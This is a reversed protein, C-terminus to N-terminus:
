SLVVGLGKILEAAEPMSFKAGKLRNDVPDMGYEIADTFDAKELNTQHFISGALSSRAFSVKECSAQSFICEKLVSDTFSCGKLKMQAFNCSHLLSKQFCIEFFTPDCLTFDVGMLKSEIFSVGQFRANELKLVVFSCSVFKCDFFRWKSLDVRDFICKEFQCELFSQPEGGEFSIDRFKKEQTEKM